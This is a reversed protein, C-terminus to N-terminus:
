AVERVAANVKNDLSECRLDKGPAKQADGIPALTLATDDSTSEAFFISRHAAVAQALASDAAASDIPGVADFRTVDDGHACLSRGRPLQKSRLVLPNVFIRARSRAFV